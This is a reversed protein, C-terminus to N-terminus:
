HTQGIVPIRDGYCNLFKIVYKKFTPNISKGLDGISSEIIDVIEKFTKDTIDTISKGIDCIRKELVEYPIDIDDSLCKETYATLYKETMTYGTSTGLFVGINSLITSMSGSIVSGIMEGAKGGVIGGLTAGAVKIIEKKM